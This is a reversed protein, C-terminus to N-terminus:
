VTTSLVVHRDSREGDFDSYDQLKTFGCARHTALSAANKKSVESYLTTGAPLQRLVACLLAKAHGLRRFDPHTELAELLLGDRFPELRLASLYRGNECWIWYRANPCSFFDESLYKRFDSEALALRRQPSEEPYLYEGNEENGERYLEMLLSFNLDELHDFSKLM